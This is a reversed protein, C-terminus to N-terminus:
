FKKTVSAYWYRNRISYNSTDYNDNFAGLVSPPQRDFANNVGVTLKTGWLLRQCFSGVDAGSVPANKADKSYHAAPAEPKKFEYSLQMDLTIYSTIRRHLIFNPEQLTGPNGPVVDNNAIFSPDDEM